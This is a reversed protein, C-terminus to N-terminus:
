RRETCPPNGPASASASPATYFPPASDPASCYIDAPGSFPIRSTGAERPHPRRRAEAKTGTWPAQGSGRPPLPPAPAKLPSGPSRTGPAPNESYPPGDPHFNRSKCRARPPRGNGGSAKSRPSPSSGAPTDPCPSRPRRRRPSGAESARNCADAPLRPPNRPRRGSAKRPPSGGAGARAPRSCGSYGSFDSPIRASRPRAPPSPPLFFPFNDPM